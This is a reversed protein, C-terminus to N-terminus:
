PTEGWQELYARGVVEHTYHRLAFDRAAAGLERRLDTDALLRELVSALDAADQERFVLGGPGMVEPIAGSSSGVCPVGAMMAMALVLGFQEKWRPTGYSPLILIDLAKMYDTVETRPVARRFLLREGLVEQWKGEIEAELPGSGVVLLRWNAQELRQVAELLLLIGKEPVLRGLFGLLVVGPPISLEDKLPRVLPALYPEPELGLQPLVVARGAYGKKERLLREGEDNGCVVLETRKLCYRTLLRKVINLPFGPVRALNDWIFFSIKATPCILRALLVTELGVASHPDEEIHIRHPRFERLVRAFHLPDFVYTMHSRGFFERIDIVEAASLGSACEREYRQFLHPVARPTLLRLELGPDLRKMEVYKRQAFATLYSNGVVLLRM